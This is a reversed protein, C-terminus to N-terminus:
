TRTHTHQLRPFLSYSKHIGSIKLFLKIILKCSIRLRIYVRQNEVLPTHVCGQTHTLTKQLSHRVYKTLEVWM